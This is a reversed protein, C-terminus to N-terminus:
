VRAKANKQAAARPRADGLNGKRRARYPPKKPQEAVPFSAHRRRQM